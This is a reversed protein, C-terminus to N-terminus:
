CTTRGETTGGELRALLAPGLQGVDGAGLTLVLDGPRTIECLHDLLKVRDGGLYAVNRHGSARIREALDAASVGDIPAEGAAYIEMVALVDAQNFATAFEDRLHFTRTYRHPQFV